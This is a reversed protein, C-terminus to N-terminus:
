AETAIDDPLLGLHEDGAISETRGPAPGVEPDDVGITAVPVGAEGHRV